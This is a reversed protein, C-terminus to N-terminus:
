NQEHNKVWNEYIKLLPLFYIIVALQMGYKFIFDCREEIENEPLKNWGFYTNYIIFFLFLILVIKFSLKIKKM